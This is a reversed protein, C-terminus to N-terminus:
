VQRLLYDFYEMEKPIANIYYMLTSREHYQRQAIHAFNNKLYQRVCNM